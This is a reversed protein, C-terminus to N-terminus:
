KAKRYTDLVVEFYNLAQEASSLQSDILKFRGEIVAIEKETFNSSLMKDLIALTTIGINEKLSNFNETKANYLGLYTTYLNRDFRSNYYSILISNSSINTTNSFESLNTIVKYLEYDCYLFDYNHQLTNLKLVLSDISISSSKLHLSDAEQACVTAAGLM